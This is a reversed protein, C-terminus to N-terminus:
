KYNEQIDIGNYFYKFATTMMEMEQPFTGSNLKLLRKYETELSKSKHISSWYFLWFQFQNGKRLSAITKLMTDTKQWMVRHLLAKYYNPADAGWVGGVAINVLKRCYISDNILTIKGGLAQIHKNALHYMTLNYDKNPVFQYTMIFEMWTNPFADFFKQQRELTNSNNVLDRYATNLKLTDVPFYQSFATNSILIVIFFALIKKTLKRKKM